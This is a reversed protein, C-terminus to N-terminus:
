IVLLLFFILSTSAEFQSFTLVSLEFIPKPTLTTLAIFLMFVVRLAPSM